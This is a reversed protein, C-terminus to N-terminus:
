LLLLAFSIYMKLYIIHEDGDGGCGAVLM